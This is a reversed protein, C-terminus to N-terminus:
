AKVLAGSHLAKHLREQRSLKAVHVRHQGRDRCLKEPLFRHNERSNTLAAGSDSQEIATHHREEESIHVFRGYSHELAVATVNNQWIILDATAGQVGM